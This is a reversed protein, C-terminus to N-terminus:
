QPIPLVKEHDSESNDTVDTPIHSESGSIKSGSFGTEDGDRDPDM